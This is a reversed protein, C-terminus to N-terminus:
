GHDTEKRRAGRAIGVKPRESAEAAEIRFPRVGLVRLQGWCRHCKLLSGVFAQHEHIATWKGCRPCIFEM